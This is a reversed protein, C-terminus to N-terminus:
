KIEGKPKNNKKEAADRWAQWGAPSAVCEYLLRAVAQARLRKFPHAFWSYACAACRKCNERFEINALNFEYRRGNSLAFRLDHIFAAPEFIALHATVRERLEDPFSDPGIGNYADRLEDPRFLAMVELGALQNVVARRWLEDIKEVTTNM